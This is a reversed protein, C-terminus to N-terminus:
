PQLTLNDPTFPINRKLTIIEFCKFYKIHKKFTILDHVNKFHIEGRMKFENQQELARSLILLVSVTVNTIM